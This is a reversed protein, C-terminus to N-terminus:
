SRRSYEVLDRIGDEFPVRVRWGLKELKSTDAVVDDLENFRPQDTTRVPKSAGAARCAAEIVDGVSYSRGAGANYAEGPPATEVALLAEVVDDVHIFDRRPHLDKVVIESVTPDVAQAVIHPILFATTQGPGFINFPRVIAVKVGYVQAFFRCAEEGSYKSFAYPNNPRAPATEAIPLQEPPGYIYASCYTMACGAARCQELVRVTGLANVRFFDEPERWADPVVTRAALHFVHSAGDMDLADRMFDFGDRRTPVSVDRSAARLRQALKVGLFGSGGTVIVKGM